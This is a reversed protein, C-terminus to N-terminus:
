EMVPFRYRESGKGNQGNGGSGVRQCGDIKERYKYTQGAKQKNIRSNIEQKSYVTDTGPVKHTLKWIQLIFHDVLAVESIITVLSEKM